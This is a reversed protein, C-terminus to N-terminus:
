IEAKAEPKKRKTENFTEPAHQNLNLRICLLDNLVINMYYKNIQIISAYM